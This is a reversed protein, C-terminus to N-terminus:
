IAYNSLSFCPQCLPEPMFDIFVPPMYARLHLLGLYVAWDRGTKIRDNLKIAESNAMRKCSRSPNAARASLTTQGVVADGIQRNGGADQESLFV